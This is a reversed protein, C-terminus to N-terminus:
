VHDGEVPRLTVVPVVTAALGPVVVVYVTTPELADPHLSVASIVM